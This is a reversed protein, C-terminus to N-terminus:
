RDTPFRVRHGSRHSAGRGRAPEGRATEDSPADFTQKMALMVKPTDRWAVHVGARAWGQRIHYVDLLNPRGATLVKRVARAEPLLTHFRSKLAAVYGAPDGLSNVLALGSQLAYVNGAGTSPGVLGAAEGVAWVNHHVVSGFDPGSLRIRAGCACIVRDVRVRALATAALPRTSPTVGARCGAGVHVETGDHSLPMIWAYGPIGRTPMFTLDPPQKVKVRWQVIRAKLDDRLPPSYARAEGTADVVLDYQQVDVPEYRIQAGDLLDSVFKPKDIMYLSTRVAVGAIDVVMRPPRHLEYRSPELGALRVLHVFSPDVGYGCPHIGCAVRHRTDFLEVQRHGRMKLLRFIYSGAVGAGAIAIRM